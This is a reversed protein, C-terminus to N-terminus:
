FLGCMIIEVNKKSRLIFRNMTIVAETAQRAWWYKGLTVFSIKFKGGFAKLVQGFCGLYLKPITEM